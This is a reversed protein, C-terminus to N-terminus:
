FYKSMFKFYDCLFEKKMLRDMTRQRLLFYYYYYYYYYYFYTSM